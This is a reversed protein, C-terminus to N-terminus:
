RGEVPEVGLWRRVWQPPRYAAVVLVSAVLAPLEYALPFWPEDTWRLVFGALVVGFLFLFSGSVMRLRYRLSPDDVRFGLVAYAAVTALVPAALLLGFLLTEGPGPTSAGVLQTQWDGLVLRREGTRSTYWTLYALYLGYLAAVPYVLRRRGTMLHLIYYMLAALAVALPLNSFHVLATHLAVDVLGAWALVTRVIPLLIVLSAAYWWLAFSRVALRNEAEAPRRHMVRGAYALFGSTALGITVSLGLTWASVSTTGEAEMRRPAYFRSSLRRRPLPESSATKM